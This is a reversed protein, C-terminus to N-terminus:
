LSNPWFSKIKLLFDLRLSEFFLAYFDPIAKKRILHSQTIGGPSIGSVVLVLFTLNSFDSIAPLWSQQTTAKSFLFSLFFASFLLNTQFIASLLLSFIHFNAIFYAM